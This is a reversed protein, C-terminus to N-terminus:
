SLALIIERYSMNRNLALEGSFAELKDAKNKAKVFISFVTPNKIIGEKQLLHSLEGLTLPDPLTIFVKEEPKVFAYMDNVVSIFLMSILLALATLIVVAEFTIKLLQKDSFLSM